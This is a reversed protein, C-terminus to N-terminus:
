KGRSFLFFNSCFIVFITFCPILYIKQKQSQLRRTRRNAKGYREDSPTLTPALAPANRIRDETNRIRDGTKRRGNGASDAIVANDANDYERREWMGSANELFQRM